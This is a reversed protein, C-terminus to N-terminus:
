ASRASCAASAICCRSTLMKPVPELEPDPHVRSVDDDSLGPLPAREDRAVRHVDAGPQLLGRCGTLHEGALARDRSHAPCELESIPAHDLGLPLRLAHRRSRHEARERKRSRLPRGPEPADEDPALGLELQQPRGEPPGDRLPLRVQHRDDALRPDALGREDPLEPLHQGAFLGGREPAGPAAKRVAVSDRVPREALHQLLM